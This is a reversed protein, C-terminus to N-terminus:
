RENAAPQLAVIRMPPPLNQPTLEIESGPRLDVSEPPYRSTFAELPLINLKLNPIRYHMPIVIRPQIARLAADLDDLEITVPGGTLALLVDTGRLFALQEATLPNGIDGMHAVRVGDLTFAYMANDGPNKKHILSEKTETADFRIGRAEWSGGSRAIELANLVVPSGPVDAADSHFDDDDSSMIVIDAPDRLPSLGAVAPTYPDTVIRVGAGRIQFCAHGEWCIVM